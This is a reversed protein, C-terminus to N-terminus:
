VKLQYVSRFLSNGCNVSFFEWCSIICSIWRLPGIYLFHRGLSEMLTDFLLVCDQCWTYNTRTHTNKERKLAHVHVSAPLVGPVRLSLRTQHLLVLQGGPDNFVIGLHLSERVFLLLLLHKATSRATTPVHVVTVRQCLFLPQPYHIHKHHQSFFFFAGRNRRERGPRAMKQTYFSFWKLQCGSHRKLALECNM